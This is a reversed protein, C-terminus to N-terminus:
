PRAAPTAQFAIAITATATRIAMGAASVDGIPPTHGRDAEGCKIVLQVPQFAGERERPFGPECIQNATHLLLGGCTDQWYQFAHAFAVAGLSERERGAGGPESM